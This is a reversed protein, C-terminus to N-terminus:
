AKDVYASWIKQGQSTALRLELQDGRQLAGVGAPTGTMIVDGAQLSFNELTKILIENINFIMKATHGQQKLQQNQWFEFEVNQWDAIVNSPLWEALVCSGDFAKAREWPYGKAKLEGQLDRLTLDLGLTVADISALLQQDDYSEGCKLDQGIRICLECEYHCSGWQSQWTIAQHNDIISSNPKIFLIPYDPVANGLEQAHEVYNRGICVVKSIQHVVSM